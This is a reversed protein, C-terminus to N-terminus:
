SWDSIATPKGDAWTFSLRKGDNAREIYNLTSGTWDFVYGTTATLATQLEGLAVEVNEVASTTQEVASTTDNIVNEILEGPSLQTLIDSLLSETEEMEINFTGGIAEITPQVMRVWSLTASDWVYQANRLAQGDSLYVDQLVTDSLDDPIDVVDLIEVKAEDIDGTDIDQAMYQAENYRFWNTDGDWSNPMMIRGLIGLNNDTLNRLKVWRV